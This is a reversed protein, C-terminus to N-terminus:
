GTKEKITLPLARPTVAFSTFMYNVLIVCAFVFTIQYVTHVDINKFMIDHVTEELARVLISSSVRREAQVCVSSHRGIAAQQIRHCVHYLLSIDEERESVLREYSQYMFIIREVIFLATSVFMFWILIIMM